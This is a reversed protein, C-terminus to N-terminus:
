LWVEGHDFGHEGLAPFHLVFPRLFGCFSVSHFRALEISFYALDNVPHQFDRVRACQFREFVPNLPKLPLLENGKFLGRFLRRWGAGERVHKFM